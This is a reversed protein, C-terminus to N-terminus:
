FREQSAQLWLDIESNTQMCCSTIPFDKKQSETLRDDEESPQVFMVCNIEHVVGNEASTNENVVVMDKVYLSDRKYLQISKNTVTIEESIKSDLDSSSKQGTLIHDMILMKRLSIDSLIKDFSSLRPSVGILSANFKNFDSSRTIEYGFFPVNTKSNDESNNKSM